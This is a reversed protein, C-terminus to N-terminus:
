KGMAEDIAADISAPEKNTGTFLSESELSWKSKDANGLYDPGNYSGLSFKLHKKLWKYREADTKM